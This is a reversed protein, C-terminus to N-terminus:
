KRFPNAELAFIGDVIEAIKGEFTEPDHDTMDVYVLQRLLEPRECPELLIPVIRFGEEIRKTIATRLEETAWAGEQYDGTLVPIFAISNAFAEEIKGPLSDGARADWKDFWPVMGEQGLRNALAESFKEHEHRYSIFVQPRQRDRATSLGVRRHLDKWCLAALSSLISSLLRQQAETLADFRSRERGTEFFVDLLQEDPYLRGSTIEPAVAVTKGDIEYDTVGVFEQMASFLRTMRNRLNEELEDLQISLDGRLRAVDARATTPTYVCRVIRLTGEHPTLLIETLRVHTLTEAM